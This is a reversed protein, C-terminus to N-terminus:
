PLVETYDDPGFSVEEGCHGCALRKVLDAMPTDADGMLVFYRPHHCHACSIFNEGSPPIMTGSADRTVKPRIRDGENAIGGWGLPMEHAEPRLATRGDEVQRATVAAAALMRALDVSTCEQGLVEYDGDTREIIVLAKGVKGQSRLEQLQALAKRRETATRLRVRPGRESM